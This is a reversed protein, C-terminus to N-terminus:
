KQTKIVTGLSLTKVMYKGTLLDYDNHLLSNAIFYGMIEEQEIFVVEEAKIDIDISKFSEGKSYITHKGPTVYFYIYEKGNTHGMEDSDKQGDLYINFNIVSQASEPRLVYVVAKGEEVKHPLVYGKTSSNMVEPSPIQSRSCGVSIVGLLVVAVLALINRRM